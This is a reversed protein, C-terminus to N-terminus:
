KRIGCRIQSVSLNKSAKRDNKISEKKKCTNVETVSALM